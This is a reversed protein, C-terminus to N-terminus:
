EEGKPHLRGMFPRFKKRVQPALVRICMTDPGGFKETLDVYRRQIKIKQGIWKATDATDCVTKIADYNIKNLVLRKRAGKFSLIAEKIPKGLADKETMPETVATIELEFTVGRPIDNAAIFPGEYRDEM